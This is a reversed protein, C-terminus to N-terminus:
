LCLFSRPRLLMDPLTLNAPRAHRASIQSIATSHPGTSDDSSANPQKPKGLHRGLPIEHAIALTADLCCAPLVIQVVSGSEQGSGKPEWRRYLLGDKWFFGEGASLNTTENAVKRAAALNPDDHQAGKVRGNAYRTRGMQHDSRQAGGESRVLTPQSKETSLDFPAEQGGEFIDDAFARFIDDSETSEKPLGNDGKSTTTEVPESRLKRTQARTTVAVIEQDQSSCDFESSSVLSESYVKSTTLLSLLESVDRGLLLQVPLRDSIGVKVTIKQDGVVVELEAIPYHVVEDHACPM